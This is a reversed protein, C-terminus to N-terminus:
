QHACQMQPGRGGHADDDEDYVENRRSANRMSADYEVLTVEEVNDSEMPIDVKTYSPLLNELDIMRTPDLFNNSPFEVDFTIFLDGKEFPNRYIPMGEGKVVKTTGPQIIDGPANKIILERKDLHTLVFEFGCLAETLGLTHKYLLNEGDRSFQKHEGQTLIIIVDGPEINPLQDGEGRFWVKQGDKMGKDIHVELIKDENVVKRGSCEKCRDKENIYNGEGNCESCTSQIEQVMGPGLQRMSKKIRRGHCGRCTMVSGPKGGIGQCKKCVVTRSLQLKSTKGNYFDELNVRLKHFADEGRHRSHRHHSGMFGMDFIGGFMDRFPFSGSGVGEQLGQIGYHDYIRRKEPNSLVEHAYNIEKFKDGANPNKDPHYEKALKNFAKKIESSSANKTVGLVNYLNLDEM